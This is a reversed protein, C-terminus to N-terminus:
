SLDPTGMDAESGLSLGTARGDGDLNFVVRQGQRLMRFISGEIADDALDFEALDSERVLIGDGTGPDYSKVVGQM